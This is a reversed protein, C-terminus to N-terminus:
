EAIAAEAERRWRMADSREWFEEHSKAQDDWAIMGLRYWHQADAKRGVKAYALARLFDYTM